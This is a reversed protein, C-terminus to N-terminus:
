YVVYDKEEVLESGLRINIARKLAARRDNLHYVSRALRVFAEGFDQEAEHRRLADEVDWLSANVSELEEEEPPSGHGATAWRSSLTELERAVNELKESNEIKRTKIRLITIKDLVDGLPVPIEM